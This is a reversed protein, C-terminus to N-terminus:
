PTSLTKLPLPITRGTRAAEYIALILELSRRGGRGDTDPRLSGALAAAVNRYYLEHGFGYVSLPSTAAGEIDKDDDDYEAFQWSEIKNMATGGIRATGTEGLITISGELNRPYTLM